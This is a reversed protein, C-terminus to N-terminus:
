HSDSYATPRLGGIQVGFSTDPAVVASTYKQAMAELEEASIKPVEQKLSEQCQM